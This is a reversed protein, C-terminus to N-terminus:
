SSFCAFRGTGTTEGSDLNILCEERCVAGNPNGECDGAATRAEAPPTLLWTRWVEGRGSAESNPPLFSTAGFALVGILVFRAVLRKSNKM